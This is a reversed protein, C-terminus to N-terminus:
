SIGVTIGALFYNLHWNAAFTVRESPRCVYHVMVIDSTMISASPPILLLCFWFWVSRVRSSTASVELNKHPRTNLLEEACELHCVCPLDHLTRSM